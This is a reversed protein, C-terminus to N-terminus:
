PILKFAYSTENLMRLFKTFFMRDNIAIRSTPFNRIGPIHAYVCM